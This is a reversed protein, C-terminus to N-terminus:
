PKAVFPLFSFGRAADSRLRVWCDPILQYNPFRALLEELAIRM